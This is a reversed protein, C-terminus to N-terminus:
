KDENIQNIIEKIIQDAKDIPVQCTGVRKHGGGGYKLMLSGVDVTSTKNIISYGCTIVINQKNLGWIVQVSVNQEPLLSYLMFRNGTFEYRCVM